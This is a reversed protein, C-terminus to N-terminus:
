GTSGTQSSSKILLRANDLVFRADEIARLADQREALTKM